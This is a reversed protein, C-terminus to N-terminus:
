VKFVLIILLVMNKISRLVTLSPITVQFGNFNVVNLELSNSIIYKLFLYHGKFPVETYFLNVNVPQFHYRLEM